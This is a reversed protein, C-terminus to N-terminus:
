QKEISLIVLCPLLILLGLMYAVLNFDSQQFLTYVIFGVIPYKALMLFIAIVKNRENMLSKVAFFIISVVFLMTFAGFTLYKLDKVWFYASTSLICFCLGASIVNRSM